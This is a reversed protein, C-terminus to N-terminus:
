PEFWLRRNLREGSMALQVVDHVNSDEPAKTGQKLLTESNFSGTNAILQCFLLSAVPITSDPITYMWKFVVEYQLM